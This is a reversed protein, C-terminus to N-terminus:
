KKSVRHARMPTKKKWEVIEGAKREIMDSQRLTHAQGPRLISEHRVDALYEAVPWVDNASTMWNIEDFRSLDVPKSFGRLTKDGKKDTYEHFYSMVLERVTRYVPDRFRLVAHNTKSVAGWRGRDQFLAIVHSDDHSAADLDLVLPRRGQVRFALAALMAGEICHATKTKMVMRPSRCTDGTPEFNYPLKNLFDQIKSPSSLRRFFRLEGPTLSFM